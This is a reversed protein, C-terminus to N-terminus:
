GESGALRDLLPPNGGKAGSGGASGCNEDGANMEGSSKDRRGRVPDCILRLPLFVSTRCAAVSGKLCRDGDGRLGVPLVLYKRCSTLPTRM